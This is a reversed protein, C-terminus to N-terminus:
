SFPIWLLPERFGMIAEDSFDFVVNDITEQDSTIRGYEDFTLIKDIGNSLNYTIPIMLKDNRDILVSYHWDGFKYQMSLIAYNRDIVLLSVRRLLKSVLESIKLRDKLLAKKVSSMEGLDTVSKISENLFDIRTEKERINKIIKNIINSQSYL